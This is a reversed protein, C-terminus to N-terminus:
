KAPVHQEASPARAAERRRDYPTQAAAAERLSAVAAEARSVQQRLHALFAEDMVGAELGNEIETLAEASERVSAISSKLLTGDGLGDSKPREVAVFSTDQLMCDALRPDALERILRNVEEPSFPVRGIVRAYLTAYKLGLQHALVKLPRRREVVAVQHVLNSFRTPGRLAPKM